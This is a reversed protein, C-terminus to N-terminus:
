SATRHELQELAFERCETLIVCAAVIRGGRPVLGAWLARMGGEAWLTRLGRGMSSYLQRPDELNAQMRTKVTDLPQTIVAAAAGSLMAGMVLAKSPSDKFADRRLLMATVLPATGLYGATYCSERLLCPGLGRMLVAAGHQRLLGQTTAVLPACTRQAPDAHTFPSRGRRARLRAQQQIIVLECPTSIFSSAIGASAAVAM